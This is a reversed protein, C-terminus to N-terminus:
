FGCTWQACQSTERGLKIMNGDRYDRVRPNTKMLSILFNSLVRVPFAICRQIGENTQLIDWGEPSTWWESGCIKKTINQVRTLCTPFMGESMVHEAAGSEMTVRAKVWRDQVEIIKKSNRNKSQEGCEIPVSSQSKQVKQKTEDASWRKGSSM